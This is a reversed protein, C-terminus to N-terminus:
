GSAAILNNAPVPFSSYSGLLYGSFYPCADHIHLLIIIPYVLCGSLAIYCLFWHDITYLM